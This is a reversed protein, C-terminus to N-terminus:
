YKPPRKQVFATLGELTEDTEFLDSFRKAEIELGAKLDLSSSINILKISENIANPSNRIIADAIKNCNSILDDKKVVENVLGIESAREASINMGTLIIENAIGKGVIRPLRQTGGWGPLLGIKVEPQSFIADESAIRIHCSLALESGGGFAYGNIAAIIPKNSNEILSTLLHGKKAFKLAEKKGMGQMLKIDAGAIFAKDGAGSVIIVKVDSDSILEKVKMILEDLVKNNMANLSEPRDIILSGILKEIKTKIFM